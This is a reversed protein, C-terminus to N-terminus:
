GDIEAAEDYRKTYERARIADADYDRLEAQCISQYQCMKCNWPYMSRYNNATKGRAKKIAGSVPVVCGKWINKLTASNRYERTARFWEIDRLKEIMETYESPNQNNNLCFTAFHEWTTKIKARSIKGDKLVQPDASPTNLHQWTLTGTIAIGMKQCAHAYVANQINYAEDDDPALSKRFKYDVCWTSKTTKDRLIADIYGHLGKMPPCPVKFHLELAPVARGGDYVTLVEYNWPEFEEFAQKFVSLADSQVQMIEPEEEPLFDTNGIYEGFDAKIAELGDELADKWDVGLWMSSMAKQMGKHCLKGVTLYAREVRPRIGEIYDYEWKKKCSLFTQIQSVSVLESPNIDDRYLYKLNM